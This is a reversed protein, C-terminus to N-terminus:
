LYEDHHSEFTLFVMRIDVYTGQYLVHGDDHYIKLSLLNYFPADEIM